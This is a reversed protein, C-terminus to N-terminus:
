RAASVSRQSLWERIERARFRVTRPGLRVHPIAHTAVWFFLTNKPVGLVASMQPYTLLQEETDDRGAPSASTADQQTGSCQM